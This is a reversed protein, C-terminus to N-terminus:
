TTAIKAWIVVCSDPSVVKEGYIELGYYNDAYEDVNRFTDPRLVKSARTVTDATGVVIPFVDEDVVSDFASVHDKSTRSLAPEFEIALGLIEKYGGTRIAEDASSTPRDTVYPSTLLLQMGEQPLFMTAATRKPQEPNSGYTYKGDAGIAGNARLALFAKLAAESYVTEPTLELPAEPTGLGLKTSNAKITADALILDMTRLNHKVRMKQAAIDTAASVYEWRGEAEQIDCVKFGYKMTRDVAMTDATFDLEDLEPRDCSKAGDTINITDVSPKTIKVTDGIRFFDGQFDENCLLSTVDSMPQKLQMQLKTALAIGYDNYTGDTGVQRAM